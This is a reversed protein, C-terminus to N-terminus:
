AYSRERIFEGENETSRVARCRWGLSTVRTICILRSSSCTSVVGTTTTARLIVGGCTKPVLRTARYFSARTMPSAGRSRALCPSMQNILNHRNNHKNFFRIVAKVRFTSRSHAAQRARPKAPANGRAHTKESACLCTKASQPGLSLRTESVATLPPALIKRAM